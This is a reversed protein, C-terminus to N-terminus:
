PLSGGAPWCCRRSSGPGPGARSSHACSAKGSKHGAPANRRLYCCPRQRTYLGPRCGARGAPVGTNGRNGTPAPVDWPSLGLRGVKDRLEEMTARPSVRMAILHPEPLAALQGVTHVGNRKLTNYWVVTLVLQEIPVGSPDELTQM